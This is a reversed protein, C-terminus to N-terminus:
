PATRPSRPCAPREHRRRAYRAHGQERLTDSLAAIRPQRPRRRRGQAPGMRAWPHSLVPAVEALSPEAARDAAQGAEDDDFAAVIVKPAKAAVLAVQPHHMGAGFFGAVAWGDPIGSQQLAMVDTAGEVLVVM